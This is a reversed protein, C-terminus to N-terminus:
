ECKKNLGESLSRATSTLWQDSPPQDADRDPRMFTFAWWLLAATWIQGQANSLHGWAKPLMALLWSVGVDGAAQITFGISVNIDRRRWRLGLFDSAYTLCVFEVLWALSAARSLDVSIRTVELPYAAGTGRVLMYAGLLYIVAVSPIVRRLIRGAAPAVNCGIETVVRVQFVASVAACLWYGYFYVAPTRDYGWVELYTAVLFLDVALRYWVFACLAPWRKWVQRSVLVYSLGVEGAISALWCLWGFATLQPM